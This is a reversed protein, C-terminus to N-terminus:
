SYGPALLLGQAGALCRVLPMARVASLAAALLQVLSHVMTQAMVGEMVVVRM